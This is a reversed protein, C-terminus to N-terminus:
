RTTKMLEELTEEAGFLDLYAVGIRLSGLHVPEGQELRAEWGPGVVYREKEVVTGGLKILYRQMLWLPMSRLEIHVTPEGEVYDIQWPIM